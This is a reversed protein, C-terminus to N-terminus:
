RMFQSIARHLESFKLPKTLFEDAGANLMEDRTEKYADGSALIVPIDHLLQDHRINILTEKGSMGPMHSDLIILDPKEVRAKEIGEIGNEAHIFYSGADTLYMSVLTRALKDDDIMLIKKERLSCLPTNDDGQVDVYVLPDAFVEPFCVEFTTERELVSRVTITGKLLEVLCKAIYLGLGTGEVFGNKGSEFPQFISQQKEKSIGEGNDIVKLYLNTGGTFLEITVVGVEPSFKIANSLLNTVIQTLKIKDTILLAGKTSEDINLAIRVGKAQGIYGHMQVISEIWPRLHFVVKQVGNLKGAEITSLELVNNVINRTYYSAANLSGVLSITERLEAPSISGNDSVKNMIMELLQSIGFVANLPTRIEHSTERLYVRKSLNAFELEKVSKELKESYDKLSTYLFRNERMYHITLLVGFVDFGLLVFLALWRLIFQNQRSLQLPQFIQYYFNVELLLLTLGIACIAIILLQKSRIILFSLGFIFVAVLTINILQGLIIGFYLASITHTLIFFLSATNHRNYKNFFIVSLFLMGECIAPIEIRLDRTFVYILSGILIAASATTLCLANIIRIRKKDEERECQETGAKIIAIVIKAIHM